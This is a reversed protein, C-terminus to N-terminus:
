SQGSRLMYFARGSLKASVEVLGPALPRVTIRGAGGGFSSGSLVPLDAYGVQRVREMESRLSYLIAKEREAAALISRASSFSFVLGSLSLLVVPCLLLFELLLYGRKNM